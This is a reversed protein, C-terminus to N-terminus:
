CSCGSALLCIALSQVRSASPGAMGGNADIVGKCTSDVYCATIGSTYCKTDTVCTVISVCGSDGLCDSATQTCTGCLCKQCASTAQALCAQEVL